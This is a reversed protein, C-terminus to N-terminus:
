LSIDLFSVIQNIRALLAAMATTNASTISSKLASLLGDAMQLNKIYEDRETGQVMAAAAAFGADIYAEANCYVYPYFVGRYQRTVTVPTTAGADYTETFYFNNLGVTTIQYTDSYTHGAPFEVWMGTTLNHGVSTARVTGPVTGSYDTFATISLTTTSVKYTFTYLGDAYTGSIDDFQLDGTIPSAGTIQTTVDEDSDTGAPNTITIVAESVTASALGAVGDWKTGDGTDAGTDDTIRFVGCKTVVDLDLSPTFM